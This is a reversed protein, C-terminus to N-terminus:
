LWQKQLFACCWFNKRDLELLCQPVIPTWQIVWWRAKFFHKMVHIYSAKLVFWFITLFSTRSWHGLYIKKDGMWKRMQHYISTKYLGEALVLKSHVNHNNLPTPHGGEQDEWNKGGIHLFQWPPRSFSISNNCTSHNVSSQSQQQPPWTDFPHKQM